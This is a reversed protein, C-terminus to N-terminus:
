EEQCQKIMQYELRTVLPLPIVPSKGAQTQQYRM